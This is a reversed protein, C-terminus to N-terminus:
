SRIGSEILTTISIRFITDTKSWDVTKFIALSARVMMKVNQKTLQRRTTEKETSPMDKRHIDL